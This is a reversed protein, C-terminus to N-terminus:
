FGKFDQIYASSWVTSSSRLLSWCEDADVTGDPNRAVICIMNRAAVSSSWKGLINYGLSTDPNDPGYNSSTSCRFMRPMYTKDAAPGGNYQHAGVGGCDANVSIPRNRGRWIETGTAISVGFEWTMQSDQVTSVGNLLSVHNFPGGNAKHCVILETKDKNLYSNTERIDDSLNTTTNAALLSIWVPTSHDAPTRILISDGRRDSPSAAGGYTGGTGDRDITLGTVSASTVNTLQVGWVISGDELVVPKGPYSKQNVGVAPAHTLALTSCAFPVLDEDFTALYPKPEESGGWDAFIRTQFVGADGRGVLVHGMNQSPNGGHNAAVHIRNNDPDSVLHHARIQDGIRSFTAYNAAATDNDIAVCKVGAGTSTNIEVVFVGTMLGNNSSRAPYTAGNFTPLSTNLNALRVRGSFYLRGNSITMDGPRVENTTTGPDVDWGSTQAWLLAGTSLQFKCYGTFWQHTGPPKVFTHILSGAADRIFMDNNDISAAYVADNEADVAFCQWRCTSGGGGDLTRIWSPDGNEDYCALYGWPSLANPDAVTVLTPSGSDKDAKRGFEIGGSEAVGLIAFKGADVDEPIVPLADTFLGTSFSLDIEDIELTVVHADNVNSYAVRQHNTVRGYGYVVEDAFMDGKLRLLPAPGWVEETPNAQTWAIMQASNAAWPLIIVGDVPTPSASQNRIEIVGAGTKTWTMLTGSGGVLINPVGNRYGGATTSFGCGRWSGGGTDEYWLFTYEDGLQADYDLVPSDGSGAFTIFGDAGAVGAGTNWTIGEHNAVPNLGSSANLGDSFSIYHAVGYIMQHFPRAQFDQMKPTTLVHTRRIGRRGDQHQGSGSRRSKGKSIINTKVSADAIETTVNNVSLFM